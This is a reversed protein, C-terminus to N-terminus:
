TKYKNRWVHTGARTSVGAVTHTFATTARGDLSAADVRLHVVCRITRRGRSRLTYTDIHIARADGPVTSFPLFIARYPALSETITDAREM